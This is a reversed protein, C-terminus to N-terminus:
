YQCNLELCKGCTCTVRIQQVVGGDSILEIKPAEGPQLNDINVLNVSAEQPLSGEKHRAGSSKVAKSSDGSPSRTVQERDSLFNKM